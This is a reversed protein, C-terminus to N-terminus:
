EKNKIKKDKYKKEQGKEATSAESSQRSWSPFLLQNIAVSWTVREKQHFPSLDTQGSSEAEGQFGQVFTHHVILLHRQSELWKSQCTTGRCNQNIFKTPGLNYLFWLLAATMKNTKTKTQKPIMEKRPLAVNWLPVHKQTLSMTNTSMPLPKQQNETNHDMTMSQFHLTAALSALMDFCSWRDIM